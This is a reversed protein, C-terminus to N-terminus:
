KKKEGYLGPLLAINIGNTFAQTCMDKIFLNTLYTALEENVKVNVGEKHSLSLL